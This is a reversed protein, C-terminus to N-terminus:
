ISADPRSCVIGSEPREAESLWSRIREWVKARTLLDLHGIGAGVWQREEPFNLSRRPDRHHGLASDVGVLGDGLLKQGFGGMPRASTGAIAYCAVGDPLPIARRRDGGGEFRDRGEWDEDVLNGYRLDTIGASRIQGLRALPATYASVGLILDVWNGGRELPAGHHPTAIFVISRLCAVWRM